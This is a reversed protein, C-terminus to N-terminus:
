ATIKSQNRQLGAMLDAFQESQIVVHSRMADAAEGPKAARIMELIQAHEDLSAGIRARARLQLRRFAQLRKQLREIEQHLFANGGIARIADHFAENAYYYTDGVGSAAATVCDTHLQDLVEIDTQTARRAANRACLAEMEAMVEFIERLRLPGIEIVFAGRRPLHEVLGTAALHFLAQRIPTRSVGFELALSVEDLRTGPGFIGTLIRDEIADRLTTTPDTM